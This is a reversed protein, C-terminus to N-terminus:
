GLSCVYDYEEPRLNMVACIRERSTGLKLLQRFVRMDLYALTRESISGQRTAPSNSAALTLGPSTHRTTALTQQLM